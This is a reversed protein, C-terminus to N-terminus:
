ADQLLKALLGDATPLMGFVGISGTLTGPAAVIRDAASALYYGGSAAVDGLSAVVPKKKNPAFKAFVLSCSLLPLLLRRAVSVTSM